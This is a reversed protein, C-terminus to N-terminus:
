NGSRLLWAGGVDRLSMGRAALASALSPGGGPFSLALDAGRASVAAIEVNSVGPTGELRERLSNWEGFSSFEAEVHVPEGGTAAPGAAAVETAGGGRTRLAKWRGEVIGHSVIAALEMAYRVDGDFLRYSRKLGFTGAADRGALTVHLRGAPRDVEAIATLVDEGNYESALVRIASDDGDVLMKLTDNHIVPKVAEVRLPTLTNTLDLEKWTSLWERAVSGDRDLKGAERVAAILVVERAQDEVFPIQERRLMSRVADARFTFDLSAIYTTASNRESRVAFGDYVNAIPVDRLPKLRAYSTVPVLRKLLSRYAAKQGDAIARNKAAVANEASAEVPFNSITFVKDSGRQAAVPGAAGLWAGVAAVVTVALRRQWAGSRGASIM